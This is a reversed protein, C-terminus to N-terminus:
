FMHYKLLQNKNQTTGESIWVRVGWEARGIRGGRQGVGGLWHSGAQREDSYLDRSQGLDRGGQGKGM